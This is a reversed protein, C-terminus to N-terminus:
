NREEPKNPAMEWGALDVGESKFFEALVHKMIALLYQFVPDEQTPTDSFAGSRIRVMEIAEYGPSGPKGTHIIGIIWDDEWKTEIYPGIYNRKQKM